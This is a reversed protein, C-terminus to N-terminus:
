LKLIFKKKPKIKQSMYIQGFDKALKEINSVRKSPHIAGGHLRRSKQHVRNTFQIRM